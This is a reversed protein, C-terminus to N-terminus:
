APTDARVLVADFDEASILGRMDLFKRTYILDHAEVAEDDRYCRYALKGEEPHVFVSATPHRKQVYGLRLLFDRLEAFPIQRTTTM